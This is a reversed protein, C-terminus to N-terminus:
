SNSRMKIIQLVHALLFSKNRSPDEGHVIKEWKGGPDERGDGQTRLGWEWDEERTWTAEGPSTALGM